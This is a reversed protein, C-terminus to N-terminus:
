AAKVKFLLYPIGPAIANRGKHHWELQDTRDLIADVGTGGGKGTYYTTYFSERNVYLIPGLEPNYDNRCLVFWDTPNAQLEPIKVPAGLGLSAVVAEVDASGGYKTADGGGVAISKAGTLQVLRKHILPGGALAVPELNLPDEGTATTLCEIYSIVKILNGLAVELTVSSDIPCAGPYIGSAAGTFLNAYTGLSSKHHNIPHAKSFFQVDDFALFEPDTDGYKLLRACEKQPWYASYIGMQQSWHMAANVGGGDSDEFSKRPLELADGAFSNEVELKADMITSYKTNGGMKNLRRIKATELLWFLIDKGANSQRVKTFQSWWHNKALGAYARQQVLQMRTEVNMVFDSTILNPAAM